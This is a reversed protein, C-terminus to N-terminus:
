QAQAKTRLSLGSLNGVILKKSLLRFRDIEMHAAGVVLASQM